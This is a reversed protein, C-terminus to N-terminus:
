CCVVDQPHDARAPDLPGAVVPVGGDAHAPTLGFTEVFAERFGAYHGLREEVMVFVTRYEQTRLDAIGIIEISM